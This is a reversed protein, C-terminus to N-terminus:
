MGISLVISMATTKPKQGNSAATAITTFGHAYRAQVAFKSTGIGVGIIGGVDSKEYTDAQYSNATTGPIKDCEYNLPTTLGSGTLTLKCAMRMAYSPGAVIFPRVSGSSMLNVRLLLPVEVYALKSELVGVAQGTGGFSLDAGKQMYYVEPQLSFMSTLSVRVYAGGLVGMRSKVKSTGNFLDKAALNFGDMSTIAGGAMVGFSLSPGSQGIALAPVIFSAALSILLSRRM